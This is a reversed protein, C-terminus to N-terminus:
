LQIFISQINIIEKIVDEKDTIRLIKDSKFEVSFKQLGTIITTTLERAHFKTNETILDIQNEYIMMAFFSMNFIALFIYLITIKAGISKLKFKMIEINRRVIM